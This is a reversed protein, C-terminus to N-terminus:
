FDMNLRSTLLAGVAFLATAATPSMADMIMPLMQLM